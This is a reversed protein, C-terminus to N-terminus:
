SSRKPSTEIILARNAKWNTLLYVNERLCVVQTVTRDFNAIPDVIICEVENSEIDYKVFRIQDNKPLSRDNNTINFYGLSITCSLLAFVIARLLRSRLVLSVLHRDYNFVAIFLVRQDFVTISDYFEGCKKNEILIESQGSNMDYRIVRTLTSIYLENARVSSIGSGAFVGEIPILTALHSNLDVKFIKCNDTSFDTNCLVYVTREEQKDFCVCNPYVKHERNTRLELGFTSYLFLSVLILLKQLLNYLWFSGTSDSLELSLYKPGINHKIDFVVLASANSVTGVFIDGDNSLACGMVIDSQREYYFLKEYDRNSSLSKTYVGSPYKNDGNNLPIYIKDNTQDFAISESFNGECPYLVSQVREVKSQTIKNM